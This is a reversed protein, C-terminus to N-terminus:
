LATGRDWQMGEGKRWIEITETYTGWSFDVQKEAPWPSGPQMLGVVPRPFTSLAPSPDPPGGKGPATCIQAAIQCQKGEAKNERSSLIIPLTKEWLSLGKRREWWSGSQSHVEGAGTKCRWGSSLSPVCTLLCSRLSLGLGVSGCCSVVCLWGTVGLDVCWPSKWLACCCNERNEWWSGWKHAGKSDHFDFHKSIFDPVAQATKGWPIAAVM